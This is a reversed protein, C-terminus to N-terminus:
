ESVDVCVLKGRSGRVYLRGNALTPATWITDDGDIVRVKTVPKFGRPTAPATLVEGTDSLAVLTKGAAIVTGRGLGRQNWVEDGTKADVCTLKSSDFGYLYGDIYLSTCMQNKLNKNEWVVSLASGDFALMACGTNYDSSIFIGNEGVIVPTAANVGYQTKWKYHAVRKGTARELVYLGTEPFVALYDKNNFTFPAPTSYAPGLDDTKWVEEGTTKNLAVIRGVDIYLKDDIVVPSGSFGWRPVAVGYDKALPRDWKVEGTNADYCLLRGDRAMHYVRGNDYAATGSPGGVNLNDYKKTPFSHSWKKEGTNADFCFFTTQGDRWGATYAKGDAVTVGTFGVGIEATWKIDAGGKGFAPDIPTGTTGDRHPGRWQPWDNSVHKDANAPLIAQSPEESSAGCSMATFCSMVLLPVVLVRDYNM